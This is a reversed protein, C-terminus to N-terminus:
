SSYLYIETSGVIHFDTAPGLERLREEGVERITSYSIRCQSGPNLAFLVVDAAQQELEIRGPFHGHQSGIEMKVISHISEGRMVQVWIIGRRSPALKGKEEMNPTNVLKARYELFAYENMLGNSALQGQGSRRRNVSRCIFKAVEPAVIGVVIEGTSDEICCVDPIDTCKASWPTNM